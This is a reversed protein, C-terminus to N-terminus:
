TFSGFILVVPKKGRFQSLRYERDGDQTRLAFEPAKEEVAPGEHISGLEGTAFGKLLILPSPDDDSKKDDKKEPPQLMLRLDEPTLYDKGKAAKAFFEQWEHQSIRGNSNADIARFWKGIPRSEKLFTAGSSWDFDEATLVGDGNRDLRDFLEAPGKFEERTITGDHDTDYRAALWDWGYRSQGPHFWGVGGELDGGTALAWLMEVIEPARPPCQRLWQGYSLPKAPIASKKAASKEQAEAEKAAAMLLLILVGKMLWVPYSRMSVEKEFLSSPM